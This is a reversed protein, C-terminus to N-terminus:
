TSPTWRSAQERVIPVILDHMAYRGKTVTMLLSYRVLGGLRVAAVPESVNWQRAFTRLSFDPGWLRGCALLCDQLVPPLHQFSVDFAIRVARVQEDIPELHELPYAADRMLEILEGSAIRLLHPGVACLALPLCGCLQAITALDRDPATTTWQRLLAISDKAPLLGLSLRRATPLSDLHRRSTVLVLSKSGPGPLLPEVQSEEAANDLLLLVSRGSLWNRWAESLETTSATRTRDANVTQLLSQLADAPSRPQEGPTFGHLDIEIRGDPFRDGVRTAFSRALATKGIGGMGQVASVVLTAGPEGADLALEDLKDLEDGRGFLSMPASALNDVARDPASHRFRAQLLSMMQDLQGRIIRDSHQRAVEQPGGQQRALKELACAAVVYAMFALTGVDLEFRALRNAGLERGGGPLEFSATALPALQIRWAEHLQGPDCLENRESQVLQSIGVVLEHVEQATRETPAGTAEVRALVAKELDALVARLFMDEPPVKAARKVWAWAGSMCQGVFWGFFVEVAM